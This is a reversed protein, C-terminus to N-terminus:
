RRHKHKKPKVTFHFVKVTPSGGLSSKYTLKATLHVTRGRKLAKVVKATPKVTFTLPVGAVGTAKLKATRTHAPRCKGKIKIQGHKCKHSKKAALARRSITATPVTVELTATGGQVPVFTITITGNSNAHIKSIAYGSNPTPAPPPKPTFTVTATASPDFSTQEGSNGLDVYMQITDIGANAGVYSLQGQGSGDLTLSGTQSNAGTITYRLTRGAYPQNATDVATATVTATQGQTLTQTGPSVQLGNPAATHNVVTFSEEANPALGATLPEDWEVGAANDITAPDVEDDFVSGAEKEYSQRVIHWIGEDGAAAGFCRGAEAAEGAEGATENWCGEEWASWPTSEVFGGLVGSAANQGGVFRPPGGLFEGTGFDDGAVYLDGAYIARFYLAHSAVNKVTFTSTFQPAGNVYTTLDTIQAYAKTAEEDEAVDYVTTQSYPSAESGSGTVPTQEIPLYVDELHPGASGSFGFTKGAVAAPQGKAVDTPFALFFGCDGSENVFYNVGTVAYSSQCEGRPGIYVTLPSGPFVAVGEASAGAATAALLAVSGALAALLCGRRTKTRPRVTAARRQISNSTIAFM